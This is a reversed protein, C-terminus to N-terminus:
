PRARGQPDLAQVQSRRYVNPLADAHQLTAEFWAEALQTRTAGRKRANVLYRLRLEIWDAELHMSITPQDPFAREMAMGRTMHRYRAAAAEHNSPDVVKKSVDDLLRRALAVNAEYAVTVAFEDFVVETDSTSNAVSHELFMANSVVRIRGSPRGPTPSDPAGVDWLRTTFLRIELVDGQLGAFEIRDGEQFMAGFRINAWAALSLIPRQLALTLGFGVLGAGVLASGLGAFGGVAVVTGALVVAVPQVSALARRKAEAGRSALLRGGFGFLLFVATCALAVALITPGLAGFGTLAEHPRLYGQRLGFQVGFMLAALVFLLAVASVLFRGRAM